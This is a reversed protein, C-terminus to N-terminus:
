VRRRVGMAEDLDRQAQDRPDETKAPEVDSVLWDDFEAIVEAVSPPDVDMQLAQSRLALAERERARVQLLYSVDCV